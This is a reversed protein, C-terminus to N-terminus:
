RDVVEVVSHPNGGIAGPQLNGVCRRVFHGVGAAVVPAARGLGGSPDANSEVPSLVSM